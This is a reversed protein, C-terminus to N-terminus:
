VQSLRMQGPEIKFSLLKKKETDLTVIWEDLSAVESAEWMFQFQGMSEIVEDLTWPWGM